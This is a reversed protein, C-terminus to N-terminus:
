LFVLMKDCHDCKVIKEGHVKLQHDKLNKLSWFENGCEDCKFEKVTRHNKIHRALNIRGSCPRSCQKCQFLLPNEHLKLHDVFYTRSVFKTDCCQIYGSTNHEDKYHIMLAKFDSCIKQCTECKLEFNKSAIYDDLEKVSETIKRVKRPRKKAAFEADSLVSDDQEDSSEDSDNDENDSEKDENNFNDNSSENESKLEHEM